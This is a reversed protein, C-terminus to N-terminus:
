FFPSRSVTVVFNQLQSVTERIKGIWALTLEELVKLKSESKKDFREVLQNLSARQFASKVLALTVYDGEGLSTRYLPDRGPQPDLFENLAIALKAEDKAKAEAVM